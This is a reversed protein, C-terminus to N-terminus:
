LKKSKTLAFVGINLTQLKSPITVEKLATSGFANEEIIAINDPLNIEM